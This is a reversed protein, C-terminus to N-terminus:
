EASIGGADLSESIIQHVIRYLREEGL